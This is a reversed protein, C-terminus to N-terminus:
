PFYWLDVISQIFDLLLSIRISDIFNGRYTCYQTVNHGNKHNWSSWLKLSKRSGIILYSCPPVNRRINRLKPRTSTQIRGAVFNANLFATKTNRRQALNEGESEMLTLRLKVMAQFDWTDTVYARFQDPLQDLSPAQEITSRHYKGYYITPKLM